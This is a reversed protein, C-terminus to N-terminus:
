RLLAPLRVGALDGLQWGDDGPRLHGEEELSRLLEGAYFPNGEAHEDLYAVLRAEYPEHLRYRARALERLDDRGLRRLDLRAARAERVLAPLLQYLPHRRTLEDARYTAVLLLPLPALQRALFRLLELSAPDAWHLDDLLLVLPQRAAVAAFFDRIQRFLAAQSAVTEGAGGQTVVAPPPQDPFAPCQDLLETWPGYPPTETLDYCRGVLVWAGRAQAEAGLAEALATKGIGAEGGILVLGGRGALTNVLRDRLIAQERARGVLLTAPEDAILPQEGPTM